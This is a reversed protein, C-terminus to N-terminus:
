RTIVRCWQYYYNQLVFVFFNIIVVHYCSSSLCGGVCWLFHTLLLVPVYVDGAAFEAAIDLVGVARM